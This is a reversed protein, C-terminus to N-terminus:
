NNYTLKRAARIHICEPAVLSGSTHLAACGICDDVNGISMPKDPDAAFSWYLFHMKQGQSLVELPNEHCFVYYNGYKTYYLYKEEFETRKWPLDRLFPNVGLSDGSIPVGPVVRDGQM